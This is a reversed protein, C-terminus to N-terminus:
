PAGPIQPLDLAGLILEATGAPLLGKAVKGRIYGPFHDPVYVNQLWIRFDGLASLPYVWMEQPNSESQPFYDPYNHDHRVRTGHRAELGERKWHTAWRQGVSIDPVNQADFRFGNQIAVLVFESMERFVSFYGAPQAHLALRDHFERWQVPVARDPDYGLARYIFMRLGARALLRFNALAEARGVEFAYYELFAMIVPESVASGAALGTGPVDVSFTLRPESFGSAALLRAFRGDRDGADWEARRDNIATHSVGCLRALSRSTMFAAGNALVGMEIGDVVKVTSVTTTDPM